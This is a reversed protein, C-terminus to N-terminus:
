KEKSDPWALLHIFKLNKEKWGASIILGKDRRVKIKKIDLLKKLGKRIFIKIKIEKKIKTIKGIKKSGAKLLVKIRAEEKIEEEKTKKLDKLSCKLNKKSKIKEM